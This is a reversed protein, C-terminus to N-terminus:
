STSRHRRGATQRAESPQLDHYQRGRSEAARVWATSKGRKRAVRRRAEARDGTRQHMEEVERAIVVSKREAQPKRPAGGKAKTAPSLLTKIRRRQERTGWNRIQERLMRLSPTVLLYPLIAPWRSAVGSFFELQYDFFERWATPTTCFRAALLGIAHTQLGCNFLAAIDQEFAPLLEGIVARAGDAADAAPRDLGRHLDAALKTEIASLDLVLTGALAGGWIRVPILAAQSPPRQKQRTHARRTAM